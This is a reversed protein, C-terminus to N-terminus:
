DIYRNTRQCVVNVLSVQNVCSIDPRFGAQHERSTNGTKGTHKQLHSKWASITAYDRHLDHPDGKKQHRSKGDQLCKM